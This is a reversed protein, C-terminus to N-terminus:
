SKLLKMAEKLRRLDDLLFLQSNGVEARASIKGSRLYRRFTPMSIELYEIAEHATFYSNKLDGFLEDHSSDGEDRFVSEALFNFFKQRESPSARKLDSLISEATITNM